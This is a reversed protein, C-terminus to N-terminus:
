QRGRPHKEGATAPTEIGARMAFPMFQRVRV